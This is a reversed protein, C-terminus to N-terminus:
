PAPLWLTQKNWQVVRIFTKLFSVKCSYSQSSSDLYAKICMCNIVLTTKNHESYIINYFVFLVPTRQEKDFSM